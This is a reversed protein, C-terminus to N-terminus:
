SAAAGEWLLSLSGPSNNPICPRILLTRYMKSLTDLVLCTKDHDRSYRPHQCSCTKVFLFHSAFLSTTVTVSM